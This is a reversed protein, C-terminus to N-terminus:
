QPILFPIIYGQNTTTLTAPDITAPISTQSALSTTNVVTTTSSFEGYNTGASRVNAGTGQFAATGSIATALFGFHYFGPQLTVTSSSVYNTSAATATIDGSDFVVALPRANANSFVCLRFTTSGTFTSATRVAIQFTRPEAIYTSWPFRLFQLAATATSPAANLPPGIWAGTAYGPNFRDAIM